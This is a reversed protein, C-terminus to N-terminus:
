SSYFDARKGFAERGGEMVTEIASVVDPNALHGRCKVYGNRGNSGLCIVNNADGLVPINANHSSIITQACDSRRRLSQILTNAIFENDLHDEPQDILLVRTKNELIVSLAVTCRQGISMEATSKTAAGDLLFFSVEDDIKVSLVEGLDSNGLQHLIRTARDLPIELIEAFDEYNSDALFAVLEEPGIRSALIPTLENYRLGSGRLASKLANTYEELKSLHSVEVSVSPRLNETLNDAIAKRLVFKDYSLKTILSVSERIANLLDGLKSQREEIQKNLAAANALQNTITGLKRAIDGAQSNFSNIKTRLTRARDDTPIRSKAKEAQHAVVDSILQQARTKMVELQSQIEVFKLHIQNLFVVVDDDSNDNSAISSPSAQFQQLIHGLSDVLRRKEEVFSKIKQESVEFQSLTKQLGNLENQAQQIEDNSESFSKQIALLRSQETTLASINPVRNQLADVEGKTELFAACSSRIQSEQPLRSQSIQDDQLFSDLLDLRGDSSSGLSEIEKQSFVIPKPFSSEAIPYPDQATRQVTLARGNTELELSVKGSQLVSIAHTLSDGSGSLAGLGFRILEIVSTKGVGRGGILVNLGNSFEIELGDLFGEEVKLRRIIM